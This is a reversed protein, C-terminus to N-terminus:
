TFRKLQQLFAVLQGGTFREDNLGCRAWLDVVDKERANPPRGGGSAPGCAATALVLRLGGTEVTVRVCVALGDARRRNLQENVWQSDAREFERADGGIQVRIM